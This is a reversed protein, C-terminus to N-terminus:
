WDAFTARLGRTPKEVWSKFVQRAHEKITVSGEDGFHARTGRHSIARTLDAISHGKFSTFGASIQVLHHADSGGLEAVHFERQNFDRIKDENYRAGIAANCVEIGEIAVGEKLLSKIQRYGGSPTWLVTPHPIAVIGGMSHILAITSRYSRGRPLPKTPYPPRFFYALIHRGLAATIETGFVVRFRCSPHNEVWELAKLAGAVADHDTIAILDLDTNEQVHVMIEDVSAMGDSVDSHIHLDAKGM